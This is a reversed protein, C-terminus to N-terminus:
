LYFKTEMWHENGESREVLYSECTEHLYKLGSDTLHLQTVNARTRWIGYRSRTMRLFGKSVLEKMDNDYKAHNKVNVSRGINNAHILWKLQRKKKPEQGSVNISRDHIYRKPFKKSNLNEFSWMTIREFNNDTKINKNWFPCYVKNQKIAIVIEVFVCLVM